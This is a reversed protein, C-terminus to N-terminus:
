YNWLMKLHSFGTQVMKGITYYQRNFWEYGEELEMVNMQKPRFVVHTCDYKSWDTTLLRGESKFKEFSRTGPFPTLIIPYCGDVKIYNIYDLTNKFINKDHSDFGFVVCTDIVIGYYHLKRIYEKYVEVDKFSKDKENFEHYDSINLGTLTYKMGSEVALRLLADDKAINIPIDGVLKVDLPILEKFLELIYGEDSLINDGQLEITRSGSSKIEDIVNEIPRYRTKDFSPAEASHSCGFKGDRSVLVSYVRNYKTKDFLHIPYPKVIALDVHERNEYKEKLCGKQFDEILNKWVGEVEGIIVADGYQLAEDPIATPHLGGLVVVKGGNKFEKALQYARMINPTSSFIAILDADTNFNVKSNVTEDILEVEIGAPTEAAASFIGQPLTAMYKVLDNFQSKALAKILCVKM